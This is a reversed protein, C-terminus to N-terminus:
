FWESYEPLDVTQGRLTHTCDNLFEIRGKRVFSHCVSKVEGKLHLKALISPKLTPTELSGDWEWAREGTVPINHYDKCGPCKFQIYKDKNTDNVAFKQSM